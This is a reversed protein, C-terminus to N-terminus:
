LLVELIYYHIEGYYLSYFERLFFLAQRLLGKEPRIM